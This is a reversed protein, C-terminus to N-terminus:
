YDYDACGVPGYTSFCVGHDSLLAGGKPDTPSNRMSMGAPLLSVEVSRSTSDMGAWQFSLTVRYNTTNGDQHHINDLGASKGHNLLYSIFLPEKTSTRYQNKGNVDKYSYTIHDGGSKTLDGGNNRADLIEAVGYFGAEKLADYWIGTNGVLKSFESNKNISTHSSQINIPHDPHMEIVFLDVGKNTALKDRLKKKNNSAYESNYLADESEVLARNLADRLYFLKLLDINERSREIVGMINPVAVAALIGMIVTVVMVEILTFGKRGKNQTQTHM